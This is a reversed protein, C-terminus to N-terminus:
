LIGRGVDRGCDPRGREEGAPCPCTRSRYSHASMLVVIGKKAKDNRM